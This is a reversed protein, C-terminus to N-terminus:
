GAEALAFSELSAQVLRRCTAEATERDIDQSQVMRALAEPIASTLELWVFSERPALDLARAAQSALFRLLRRFRLQSEAGLPSDQHRERLILLLVPGTEILYGLYATYTAVARSAFSRGADGMPRVVEDLRELHSLFIADLIAPVGDYYVYLLSRSVGIRDAIDNLSMSLSRTELMLAQTATLVQQARDRDNGLSDM